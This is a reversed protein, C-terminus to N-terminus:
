IQEVAYIKVNKTKGKLLVDGILEFSFKGEGIQNKIAESVLLLRQYQNCLSQIRAATNLVDSHYVITRKLVGVEVVTVLGINVGAKFVPQLGYTQQYYEKKQELEEKFHFYANICNEEELANKLTWSLVAEDGVYQYVQAKTKVLSSSLDRFCDRILQSYLRHGLEEAITTSSKLDLFMFARNEVKPERYKGTLLNNFDQSGIKARLTHFISLIFNGVLAGILLFRVTASFIYTLPNTVLENINDQKVDMLYNLFAVVSLVVGSVLFLYSTRLLIIMGLSHHYLEQSELWSEVLTYFFGISIGLILGNVIIRSTPIHVPLNIFAIKGIDYYRVALIFIFVLCWFILNFLLRKSINRVTKGKKSPKVQHM